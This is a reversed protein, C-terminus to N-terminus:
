AAFLGLKGRSLVALVAIGVALLVWTGPEPIPVPNPSGFSVVVDGREIQAILDAPITGTLNLTIVVTDQIGELGKGLFAAPNAIGASSSLLGFDPGDLNPPQAISGAAFQNTTSSEMASVATNVNSSTITPDQFPGSHLDPPADYGWEKSVNGGAPPTFHIATSGAGMVVSGGSIGIGPPLKFAIGTLLSDAPEPGPLGTSTNKLTIKLQKGSLTMDVTAAYVSPNVVTEYPLIIEDVTIPVAHLHVSMSFFAVAVTIGLSTVGRM